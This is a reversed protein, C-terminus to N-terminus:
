GAVGVLDVEVALDLLDLLAILGLNILKGLPEFFKFCGGYVPCRVWSSTYPTGNTM